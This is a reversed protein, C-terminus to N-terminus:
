NSAHTESARAPEAVEINISRKTVREALRINPGYGIARKAADADKVVVTTALKEPNDRISVVDSPELPFLANLVLEAMDETWDILAVFEGGLRRRAEELDPGVCERTPSVVAPAVSQVVVKSGRGQERALAVINVDGDRLTGLTESLVDRAFASAPDKQVQVDLSWGILESTMRVNWWQRGIVLPAVDENVYVTGTLDEENLDIGQVAGQDPPYLTQQIVTRMDEYDRSWPVLSLIEGGTAANLRAPLTADRAFLDRLAEDADTEGSVKVAVKAGLGAAREVQVVEWDGTRFESIEQSLARTVFQAERQKRKAYERSPTCVALIAANDQGLYRPASYDYTRLIRLHDQQRIRQLVLKAIAVNESGWANLYLSQAGGQTELDLRKLYRGIGHKQYVEPHLLLVFAVKTRAGDFTLPVNEEKAKTAIVYLFEAFARLEGHIAPSPTALQLADGLGALEWLYVRSFFGAGQLEDLLNLDERLRPEETLAPNLVENVFYGLAGTDRASSFISRAVAFDTAKRLASDLYDRARPLLGKGLYLLTAAVINRDQNMRYDLRVVVEGRNVFAEAEKASVWQLRLAHPLAGPAEKELRLRASSVIADIDSSAQRQDIWRAFGKSLKKAGSAMRYFITMWYDFKDPHTFLFLLVGAVAAIALPVGTVVPLLM